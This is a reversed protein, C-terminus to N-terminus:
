GEGTTYRRPAAPRASAAHGLPEPATASFRGPYLCPWTRRRPIPRSRAPAAPQPASVAAVAPTATALKPVTNAAPWQRSQCPPPVVALARISGPM